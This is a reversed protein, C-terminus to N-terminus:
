ALCIHIPRGRGGEQGAEGEQPGTVTLISCPRPSLRVEVLKAEKKKKEEEEKKKKDEFKKMKALKAKEKDSLVREGYLLLLCAEIREQTKEAGRSLFTLTPTRGDLIGFVTIAAM